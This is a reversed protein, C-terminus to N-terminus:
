GATPVVDGESGRSRRSPGNSGHTPEWTFFRRAMVAGLVGWAAVIALRGWNFAPADVAPNFTDQVGRAFPGLPFWESVFKLFFPPNEFPIFVNSVFGLPLVIANAVAPASEASKILSAVAIGLMSFASVGVVFSVVLAPFKAMDLRVDYFLLGVVIMLAAGFTAIIVASLLYGGICVWPPLPTSRWRKLIGEKRRVPLMNALNTFTASVASFAALGGVYFQQLPFDGGGMELTEGSFVAGFVVLMVLPLIVTFFLAVPIRVFMLLQYRIQSLLMSLSSPRKATPSVSMSATM